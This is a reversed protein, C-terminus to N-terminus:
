TIEFKHIAKLGATAAEKPYKQSINALLPFIYQADLYYEAAEPLLSLAGSEKKDRQIYETLSFSNMRALYGGTGIIKRARSLDKGKQLFVKGQPTYVEERTGAHRRAAGLCCAQALIHEFGKEEECQPLYEHMKDIKEIYLSFADESLRATELRQRIFDVMSKQVALASVRMGLDGEVTRKTEPERLGKLVTGPALLASGGCSYFDTTAGGMDVLCFEGLEPHLEHISCLYEFLSYPTPLPAKGARLAVQDLGKGFVIKEMFIRRIQSRASELSYRGLEPLVNDAACFDSDKLIDSIRGSVARNGAYVISCELKADALMRANHLNYKEAGGDTGGTFLLIDPSSKRLSEIDDACLKYSYVHEVRAGASLAALRATELTLEPVIGIAAVRLGGKASSSCFIECGDDQCELRELMRNFGEPLCDVTTPTSAGGLFSLAGGALAFLAGKTYTSGIDISVIRKM